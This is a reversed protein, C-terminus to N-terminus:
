CLMKGLSDQMLQIRPPSLLLTLTTTRRTHLIIIIINNNNHIGPTTIRKLRSIMTVHVAELIIIHFHQMKKEFFNNYTDTHWSKTRRLWLDHGDSLLWILRGRIVM